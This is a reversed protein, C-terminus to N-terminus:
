DTPSGHLRADQPMSNADQQGHNDAEDRQPLRRPCQTLSPRLGLTSLTLVGDVM